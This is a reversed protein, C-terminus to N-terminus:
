FFQYFEDSLNFSHLKELYSTLSGDGVELRWDGFEQRWDGIELRRDWRKDRAERRGNGTEHRRKMDGTEHRKGQREQGM